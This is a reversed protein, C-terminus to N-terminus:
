QSAKDMAAVIEDIRQLRGRRNEMSRATALSRRAEAYEGREALLKGIVYHADRDAPNISVVKRLNVLAEDADGTELYWIGVNYLVSPNAPDLALAMELYRRTQDLENRRAHLTALAIVSALNSPDAAHAQQYFDLALEQEGRAEHVRGLEYLATFSGPLFDLIAQCHAEAGDLDGQAMCIRAMFYHAEDQYPDIALSREYMERAKDPQNGHILYASAITTLTRANTPDGAVVSELVRIGEFYSGMRLLDMGVGHLDFLHRRAIPDALGAVAHLDDTIGRSTQLSSLIYGLSELKARAETDPMALSSGAPNRYTAIVQELRETLRQVANPDQGALDHLEAPDGDVRFVRPVPGHILKEHASRLGRLEGWGCQLRGALSEMYIARDAPGEQGDMLPVLSLGQVEAPPAIGLLDLVTPMIDVTSTVSDVVRAERQGPRRIILPVRMTSDFILLSHTPEGHDLLGEGHDGVVVVLTRDYEGREKLASLFRGVQEDVFAIECDYGEGFRSRHPEPPNIPEHPDFFHLWAFFPRRRPRELWELASKVVMNAKREAFGFANQERQTLEDISWGAEVRDDYLEFGQDLNFRSDLVFSGTFAVTEWGRGALVEALTLAQEPVVFTSNDRVGHYLPYTGTLISAHSPLTIPNTAFAQSFRCSQAALDDIAPTTDQPYGYCSLHDARTTDLTILLVNPPPPTCALTVGLALLVVFSPGLRGSGPDSRRSRQM